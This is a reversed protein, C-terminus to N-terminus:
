EYRLAIIPDVRTARRAPVYCALFSAVSVVIAVILFTLPDTARVGFLFDSMFQTLAIAAAIGVAIGLAALRAGNGIIMRLVSGAQAGLAIRIGIERTRQAVAYALVGYTGVTSLILAFLAFIGLLRMMWSEQAVSSEVSHQLTQIDSAPQDKDVRHIEDLIARTLSAPNVTAASRVLLVNPALMWPYQQFPVYIEPHVSEDPGRSHVNGAVGIVTLWLRKSSSSGMRLQKGVPNQGPWHIRALEENVIAVRNGAQTDHDDFVRGARLPVGTVRFYDPGAVIYNADPTQGAAPSPNDITTFFQGAWDGIPLGRSVSASEVGPLTEVSAVLRSWFEARMQPDKYREGSLPIQMTLVNAPNIGLNVHSVNALTRIMLGAGVLLVMALAIECVVLTGRFIRSQPSQLAGRSSEKLAEADRLKLAQIAPALGFLLTTGVAASIAFALVRLNVTANALGPAMKFLFPPALAILGRNGWWAFLIGLAGGALAILLSETLLQRVLRGHGAGLAKRVAFEAARGAGRALLLNAVNACAILLVFTVAGMLMLLPMRTDGSDITRLSMLQARWGKLEPFTKDIRASVPNLEAEAQEITAGSKLRGIAMYDNWIKTPSLAIGSLWLQPVTNYPTAYLHTFGEPM